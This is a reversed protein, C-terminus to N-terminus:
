EPLEKLKQDLERLGFGEARVVHTRDTLILWPQVRVGWKRLVGDSERKDYAIRDGQPLWDLRAANELFDEIGTLTYDSASAGVDDPTNSLTPSTLGLNSILLILAVFMYRRFM